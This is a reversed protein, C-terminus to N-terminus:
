GSTNYRAMREQNLARNRAAMEGRSMKKAPANKLNCVKILTLLRNLHWHQCEFPVQLAIMWYYILEATVIERSRGPNTETFTTATMPSAIYDNIARLHASSLRDFVEPPTEPDLCMFQIYDLIEETTKESHALFSKEWKSEWKALSVLSHEFKLDVTELQIFEQNSEDFLEASPVNINLM